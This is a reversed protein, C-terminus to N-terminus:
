KYIVRDASWLRECKTFVYPRKSRGKLARGVVEESHGRGYRPATDIWDIGKDLAANIAGISADDDQHGWSFAWGAGGMAWAGIGLPTIQLDSNALQRTRMLIRYRARVQPPEM